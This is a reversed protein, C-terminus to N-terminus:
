YKESMWLLEGVDTENPEFEEFKGELETQTSHKTEEGRGARAWSKIMYKLKTERIEELKGIEGM